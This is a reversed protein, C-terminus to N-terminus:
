NHPLQELITKVSPRDGPNRGIHGWLIHGDTDVVFVSPAALRDGLLNYVGYTEAVIHDVDAMMPFAAKAAKRAGDVSSM